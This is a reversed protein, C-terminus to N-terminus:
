HPLNKLLYILAQKNFYTSGNPTARNPHVCLGDILTNQFAEKQFKKKKQTSNTYLHEFHYKPFLM